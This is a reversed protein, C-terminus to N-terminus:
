RSKFRSSAVQSNAFMILTQYLRHGPAECDPIAAAKVVERVEMAKVRLGRGQQRCCPLGHVFGPIM